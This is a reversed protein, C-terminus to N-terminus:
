QKIMSMREIESNIVNSIFLFEDIKMGDIRVFKPSGLERFRVSFAFLYPVNLYINSKCASFSNGLM